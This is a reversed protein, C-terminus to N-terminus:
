RVPTNTGYEPKITKRREPKAEQYEKLAETAKSQLSKLNDQFWKEGGPTSLVWNCSALDKIFSKDATDPVPVFVFRAKMFGLRPSIYTYYTKGREMNAELLESSEGGVVYLHKGPTTRHLYKTGSSMIAVFSMKGDESVEIIPAQVAGGFFSSRFFVIVTENSKVPENLKNMDAPRVPQMLSSSCATMGMSAIVMLLIFFKRM